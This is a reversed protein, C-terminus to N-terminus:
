IDGIRRNRQHVWVLIDSDCFYKNSKRRTITKNKININKTYRFWNTLSYKQPMEFHDKTFM